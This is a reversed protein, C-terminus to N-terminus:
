KLLQLVQSKNSYYIELTEPWGHFLWLHPSSLPVELYEYIELIERAVSSTQAKNWYVFGM